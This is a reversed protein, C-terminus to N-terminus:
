PSPVLRRVVDPRLDRFVFMATVLFAIAIRGAHDFDGAYGSLLFLLGASLLHAGIVPNDRRKRAESTLAAAMDDRYQRVVGPLAFVVMALASGWLQPAWLGGPTWAALLVTVWGFLATFAVAAAIGIAVLFLLAAIADAAGRDGVEQRTAVALAVVAICAVAVAVDFVSLLLFYEVSAGFAFLGVLPVAHRAVILASQLPDPRAGASAGPQAQPETAVFRRKGM